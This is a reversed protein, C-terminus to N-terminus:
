TSSRAASSLKTEGETLVMGIASAVAQLAQFHVERFFSSKNSDLCLVFRCGSGVKAPVEVCVLSLPREGCQDSLPTYVDEIIDLKNYGPSGSEDSWIRVGHPFKTWPIYVISQLDDGPNDVSLAKGAASKQPLGTEPWRYTDSPYQGYLEFPATPESGKKLITAALRVGQPRLSTLMQLAREMFKGHQESGSSKVVLRMGVVLLRRLSSLLVHYSELRRELRNHHWAMLAALGITIISFGLLAKSGLGLTAFTAHCLKDLAKPAPPIWAARDYMRHFSADLEEAFAIAVETFSLAAVVYALYPAVWKRLAFSVCWWLLYLYGLLRWGFFKLRNTLKGAWSSEGPSSM